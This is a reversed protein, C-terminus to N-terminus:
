IRAWAEDTWPVAPPRWETWGMDDISIDTVEPYVPETSINPGDPTSEPVIKDPQGIQGIEKRVFHTPSIRSRLFGVHYNLAFRLLNHFDEPRSVVHILASQHFNGIGVQENDPQKLAANTIAESKNMVCHRGDKHRLFVKCLLMRPNITMAIMAKIRGEAIDEDTVGAPIFKRYDINNDQTM